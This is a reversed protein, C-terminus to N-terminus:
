TLYQCFINVICKVNLFHLFVDNLIVSVAAFTLSPSELRKFVLDKVKQRLFIIKDITAKTGELTIWQNIKIQSTRDGDVIFNGVDNGIM